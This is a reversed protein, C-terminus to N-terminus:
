ADLVISTPAKIQLQQGPTSDALAGLSTALWEFIASFNADVGLSYVRMDSRAFLKLAAGDAAPPVAIPWVVVRKDECAKRSEAAALQWDDDNPGGDSMLFIWPRTYPIGKEGTLKQRLEETSALAMRMAKGMATLGAAQLTPAQFEDAQVWDCLVTAESGFGIVKLLVQQRLTEDGTVTKQFLKLAENLNDIRDRMSISTDLVLVCPIRQVGSAQLAVDIDPIDTLPNM